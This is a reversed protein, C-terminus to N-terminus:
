RWPLIEIVMKSTHLLFMFCCSSCEKRREMEEPHNAVIRDNIYFAKAVVDSVVEHSVAQSLSMIIEKLSDRPM